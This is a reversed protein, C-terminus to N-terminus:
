EQNIKDDADSTEEAKADAPHPMKWGVSVRLQADRSDARALMAGATSDIKIAFDVKVHDPKDEMGNLADLVSGAALRITDMAQGFATNATKRKEEHTAQVEFGVHGKNDSVEILIKGTDGIKSEIYEVM